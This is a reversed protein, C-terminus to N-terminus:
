PVFSVSSAKHANVDADTFYLSPAKNRRWLEMEDAHHRSKPDFVQGGPLANWARPGEPTMEVVLRQVPGNEYSFKEANSMGFNSADV